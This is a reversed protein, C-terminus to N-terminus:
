QRAEKAMTSSVSLLMEYDTVNVRGAPDVEITARVLSGLYFLSTKILFGRPAHGSIEPAHHHAVINDMQGDGLAELAAHDRPDTIVSIDGDPGSGHDGVDFLLLFVM